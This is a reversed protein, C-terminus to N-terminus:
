EEIEKIFQEAEAITMHREEYKISRNFSDYFDNIWFRLLKTAIALQVEQEQYRTLLSDYKTDTALLERQIFELKKRSLNDKDYLALADNTIQEHFTM